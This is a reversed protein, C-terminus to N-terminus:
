EVALQVTLKSAVPRGGRMAPSYRWQRVAQISAEEFGREAPIAHILKVSRAVTGDPQVLIELTVRGKVGLWKATAPYVPEVYTVRQAPADTSSGPAPEESARWTPITRPVVPDAPPPAPEPLAADHELAPAATAPPPTEPPPPPPSPPVRPAVATDSPILRASAPSDSRRALELTEVQLYTGGDAAWWSATPRFATLVVGCAEDRWVASGGDNLRDDLADAGAAPPGYRTLIAAVTDKSLPISVRVRVLRARRREVRQDYEVYIDHDTSPYLVATAEGGSELRVQTALGDGGMLSQVADRSMGLSLGDLAYRGCANGTVAPAATLVTLLAIAATSGM